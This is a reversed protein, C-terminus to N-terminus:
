YWSVNEQDHAKPPEGEDGVNVAVCNPLEYVGAIDPPRAPYQVSPPCDHDTVFGSEGDFEVHWHHVFWCVLPVTVLENVIL